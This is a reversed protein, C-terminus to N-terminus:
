LLTIIALMTTAFSILIPVSSSEEQTEDPSSDTTIPEKTESGTTGSNGTTTCGEPLTRQRKMWERKNTSSCETIGCRSPEIIRKVGAGNVLYLDRKEDQAFAIFSQGCDTQSSECEVSIADAPAFTGSGISTEYSSYLGHLWDSFIYRGYTCNDKDGRYVYGGIVSEGGNNHPYSVVPEINNSIAPLSDSVITGEYKPWGYNGGKIILDVEEVDGEGVDGCLLYDPQLADAFSCRYPNRLGIAWIENKEEDFFPNDSPVSYNKGSDPTSDLDLRLMKGWYYSLGQSVMRPDNPEIGGDGFAVYFYGDNGFNISGANHNLFPQILRFITRTPTSSSLSNSSPPNNIYEEIVSQHNFVCFNNQCPQDWQQGNWHPCDSDQTCPVACDPHAQPDCSYHLYFKGNTRYDPHFAFGLLGREGGNFVRNQINMFLGLNQGTYRNFIQIRGDRGVLFMRDTGDNPFALDLPWTVQTWPDGFPNNVIHETCISGHEERPPSTPLEFPQGDFCYIRDDLANDECFGIEGSCSYLESLTTTRGQPDFPNNKWEIDKCANWFESCFDPCFLPVDRDLSLEVGFIHAGWTDCQGCFSNKVFEFCEGPPLDFSSVYAQISNDNQCCSESAYNTCFDHTGPAPTTPTTLRDRCLPHGEM